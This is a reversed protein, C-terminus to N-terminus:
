LADVANDVNAGQVFVGVSPYNACFQPLALWVTVFNVVTLALPALSIISAHSALAACRAGDLWASSCTSWSHSRLPSVASKARATARNQSACAASTARPQAIGDAGDAM